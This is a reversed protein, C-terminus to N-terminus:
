SIDKESQLKVLKHIYRPDQAYKICRLFVLYLDPDNELRWGVSSYWEQFLKYDKVSDTWHDYYAHGYLIGRAPTERGRSPYKMGFLNNNDQFIISTYFGTELQAQLLVIDPNKIKEYYLCEKLLEESFPKNKAENYFNIKKVEFIMNESIPCNGGPISSYFLFFLIVIFYIRM